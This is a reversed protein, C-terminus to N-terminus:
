LERRGRIEEGGREREVKRGGSKKEEEKRGERRGECKWEEVKNKGGGEREGEKVKRWDKRGM